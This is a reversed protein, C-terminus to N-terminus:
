AKRKADRARMLAVLPSDPAEASASASVVRTRSSPTMGFEALLAKVKEFERNQVCWYPSYAFKPIKGDGREMFVPGYQAVKEAAAHFDILARVLLEFAVGDLKTAAGSRELMAALRKWLARREKPWGRPPNPLKHEAQPEARNVPRRGPNGELLKIATPKPPPGRKGM